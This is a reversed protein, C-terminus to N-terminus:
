IGYGVNKAIYTDLRVLLDPDGVKRVEVSVQRLSEASAANGAIYVINRTVNFGFQVPIAAGSINTKAREIEFNALNVAYSMQRALNVSQWYQSIMLALPSFLIGMVVIAM